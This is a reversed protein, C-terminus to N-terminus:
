PIVTISGNWLYPEEVVEVLYLGPQVRRGRSDRGDWIYAHDTSPQLYAVMHGRTDLIRAELHSTEPAKVEIRAIGEGARIPVGHM